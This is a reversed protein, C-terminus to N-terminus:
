RTLPSRPPGGFLPLIGDEDEESTVMFFCRAKGATNRRIEIAASRRDGRGRGRGVLDRAGGAAVGVERPGVVGGGERRQLAGFLEAVVELERPAPPRSRALAARARPRERRWGRVRSRPAARLAACRRDADAVLEELRAPRAADAAVVVEPDVRAVVHERDVALEPGRDDGVRLVAAHRRHRASAIFRPARARSAAGRRVISRRPPEVGVELGAGVVARLHQADGLAADQAEGARRRGERAEVVVELADHLGVVVHHDLDLHHVVRADHAHVRLM